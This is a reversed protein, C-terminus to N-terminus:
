PHDMNTTGSSSSNPQDLDSVDSVNVIEIMLIHRASIIPPINLPFFSLGSIESTIEAARIAAPNM